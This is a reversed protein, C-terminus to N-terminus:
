LDESEGLEFNQSLYQSKQEDSISLIVDDNRNASRSEQTFQSVSTAIIQLWIYVIYNNQIVVLCLLLLKFM